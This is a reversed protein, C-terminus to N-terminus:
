INRARSVQEEIASRLMAATPTGTRRGADVYTRCGFGFQTAARAEPEVDLGDVRVTPSGLFGLSQAQEASLVEVEAVEAVEAEVGSERVVERVLSITPASNPCGAFYLVEIKM